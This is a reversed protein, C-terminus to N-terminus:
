KDKAFNEYAETLFEKSYCVVMNIDHLKTIYTKLQVVLSHNPCHKKLQKKLLKLNKEEQDLDLKYFIFPADKRKIGMMYETIYYRMGNMNRKPVYDRLASKIDVKKDKMSALVLEFEYQQEIYDITKQVKKLIKKKQIHITKQDTHSTQENKCAPLLFLGAIITALAIYKKM